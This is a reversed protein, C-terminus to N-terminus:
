VGGGGTGHSGGSCGAAGAGGDSCGPGIEFWDPGTAPYYNNHWCGPEEVLDLDLSYETGDITAIVTCRGPQHADVFWEDCRPETRCLFLADVCAGEGRVDVTDLPEGCIVLGFSIPESM